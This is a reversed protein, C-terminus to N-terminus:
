HVAISQPDTFSIVFSVALLDSDDCNRCIFPRVEVVSQQTGLAASYSDFPGFATPCWPHVYYKIFYNGDMNM